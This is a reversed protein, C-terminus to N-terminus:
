VPHFDGAAPDAGFRRASNKLAEQLDAATIFYSAPLHAVDETIQAHAGVSGIALVVVACIMATNASLQKTPFDGREIFRDPNDVTNKM